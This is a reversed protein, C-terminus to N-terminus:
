DSIKFAVIALAIAGVYFFKIPKRSEGWLFVGCFVAGIVGMGTYVAYAVSMDIARM